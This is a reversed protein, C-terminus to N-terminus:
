QVLKAIKEIPITNAMEMVAKEDSIGVCNFTLLSSQFPVQIDWSILETDSVNKQLLGKYSGLKIRKQNPDGGAFFPISLIANISALLPSDGIIQISASTENEGKYSRSVSLGAFGLNTTSMETDSDTAVMEGMTKPLIKIVEQGIAHDIENLAQQLAFRSNHLDGSKYANRAEDFKSGADQAKVGVIVFCAIVFTLITSKM